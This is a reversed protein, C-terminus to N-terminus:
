YASDAEEAADDQGDFRRRRNKKKSKKIKDFWRMSFFEIDKEIFETKGLMRGKKGGGSEGRDIRIHMNKLYIGKIYKVHNAEINKSPKKGMM